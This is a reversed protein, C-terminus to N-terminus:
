ISETEYEVDITIDQIVGNLLYWFLCSVEWTGPQAPVQSGGEEVLSEGPGLPFSLDDYCAFDQIMASEVKTGDPAWVDCGRMLCEDSVGGIEVPFSCPNTSTYTGNLAYYDASEIWNDSLLVEHVLGPGEGCDLMASDDDDDSGTDDNNGSDDDDLGSDDDDVSSDDDQGDDDDGRSSDDDGVSPEPICSAALWALVLRAGAAGAVLRLALCRGMGPTNRGM